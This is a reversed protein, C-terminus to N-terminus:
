NGKAGMPPAISEEGGGGGDGGSPPEMGGPGFKPGGGETTMPQQQAGGGAIGGGGGSSPFTVNSGGEALFTVTATIPQGNSEGGKTFGAVRMGSWKKEAEYSQFNADRVALDTGQGWIMRVRRRGDRYPDSEAHYLFGQVRLGTDFIYCKGTEIKLWGRTLMTNVDTQLYAIAVRIDHPFENCFTIDGSGARASSVACLGIAIVTGCIGLRSRV